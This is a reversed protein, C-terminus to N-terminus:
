NPLTITIREQIDGVSITLELSGNWPLESLPFGLSWSTLESRHSLPTIAGQYRSKDTSTTLSAEIFKVVKSTQSSDVELLLYTTRVGLQVGRVGVCIGSVSCGRAVATTSRDFRILKSLSIGNLNFSAIKGDSGTFVDYSNPGKNFLIRYTSGNNELQFGSGEGSGESINIQKGRLLFKVLSEAPSGPSVDYLMSEFSSSTFQSYATMFRAIVEPSVSNAVSVTTETTQAPTVSYIENLDDWNLEIPEIDSLGRSTLVSNPLARLNPAVRSYSGDGGAFYRWTYGTGCGLTGPSAGLVGGSPPSNGLRDFTVLVESVGDRPSDIVLLGTPTALTPVQLSQTFDAWTNNTWEYFKLGTSTLLLAHQGCGDLIGSSARAVLSARLQELAVQPDTSSSLTSTTSTISSTTSVATDNVLVTIVSASKEDSGRLGLVDSLFGLSATGVAVISAITRVIKSKFLRSIALFM